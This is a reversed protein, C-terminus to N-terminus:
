QLKGTTWKGHECHGYYVIGDAPAKVLMRERDAKLKALKAASQQHSLELKELNLRAKTPALPLAIKAKELAVAERRAAEKMATEQRPLSTELTEATRSKALELNFRARDVDNRARKLIIEETEETLDDANYMKELQKLEEAVYELNHESSKLSFRASKESLPRQEKLFRKPDEEATQKACEAAALELPTMKELSKLEARALALSLESVKQANQLEAIAEDIGEMDLKLLSDGQKVRAGHEVAELVTLSKWSEAEISVPTMNEAEIVGSLSVELKFERKKVAHVAPSKGDEASM